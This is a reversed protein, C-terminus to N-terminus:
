AGEPQGQRTTQRCSCPHCPPRVGSCKAALLPWASAALASISAPASLSAFSSTLSPLAHASLPSSPPQRHCALILSSPIRRKRHRM